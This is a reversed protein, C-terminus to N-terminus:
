CFIVPMPYMDEDEDDDDRFASFDNLANYTADDWGSVYMAVRVATMMAMVLDDSAGIRAQYTNGVAVFTNLESVLNKSKISLKEYEILNKLKACAEVKTKNTTVYGKRRNKASLATNPDHVFTGKIKEEGVNRIVSLVAEGMGNSEVTWFIEPDCKDHIEKAIDRLVQVQGEVMTRNHQWEAVQRFSPLELVEIAANDGGTGMSPDLVIIYTSGKKIEEYWRVQGSKRIPFSSKLSESLKSLKASSILTEEFVIFECNSSVINNAFFRHGNEVEILDFVEEVRGTDEISLIKIDGDTSMVTDGVVLDCLPVRSSNNVFLKHDHTCELWMGNELSIKWIGKKGMMDIGSFNQFGDPTLVKYNKTNLKM